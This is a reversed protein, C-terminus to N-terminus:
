HIYMSHNSSYRSYPHLPHLLQVRWHLPLIPSVSHGELLTFLNKWPHEYQHLILDTPESVRGPLGAIGWDHFGAFSCVFYCVIQVYFILGHM